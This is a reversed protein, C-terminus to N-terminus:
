FDKLNFCMEYLIRTSSPLQHGLTSNAAQHLEGRLQKCALASRQIARPHKTHLWSAKFKGAECSLLTHPLSVSLPLFLFLSLSLSLSLPLSLSLYLSRFLSLYLSAPFCLSLSVSLSFRFCLWLWPCLCVGWGYRMLNGHSTEGGFPSPDELQTRTLNTADYMFVYISLENKSSIRNLESLAVVLNWHSLAVPISREYSVAGGGWSWWLARPM